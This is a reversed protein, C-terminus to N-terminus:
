LLVIIMMMQANNCHESNLASLVICQKCNLVVLSVKTLNKNPDSSKRILTHVLYMIDAVKPRCTNVWGSFLYQLSYYLHVKIHLVHQKTM